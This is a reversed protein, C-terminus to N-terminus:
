HGPPDFLELGQARTEALKDLFDNRPITHAGMMEMHPTLTQIDIWSAGRGALHDILHLLALRSAYPRRHFMSEGAFIGDVAVGYLGGVLEEGEWVEVSHAYGLRHFEGYAHEIEPTIWTGGDDDRLTAGCAHIVTPFARDITFTFTTRRQAQRTSRPIRLNAFELIGRELPSSWVLPLGYMPWPFIGSRYALLLSEPHLDGGVCVIDDVADTRLDPFRLIPM